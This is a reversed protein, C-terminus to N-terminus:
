WEIRCANAVYNLWNRCEWFDDKSRSDQWIGLAKLSLMRNAACRCIAQVLKLMLNRYDNIM